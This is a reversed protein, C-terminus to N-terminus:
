RSAPAPRFFQWWYYVAASLVILFGGGFITAFVVVGSADVTPDLVSISSNTPNVRCTTKLGKPYRRVAEDNETASSSGIFFLTSDVFSKGDIEYRYRIVPTTRVSGKRDKSSEVRSEIIECAVEPWTSAQMAARLTPVGFLTGLCGFLLPLLTVLALSPLTPRRGHTM